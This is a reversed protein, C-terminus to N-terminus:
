LPDATDRDSEDQRCDRNDQSPSDQVPLKSSYRSIVKKISDSDELSLDSMIDAENGAIQTLEFKGSSEIDVNEKSPRENKGTIVTFAMETDIRCKWKSVIDAATHYITVKGSPLVRLAIKLTRSFLHRENCEYCTQFFSSILYPCVCSEM